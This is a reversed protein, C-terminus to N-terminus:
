RCHRDGLSAPSMSACVCTSHPQHNGGRGIVINSPFQSANSKKHVPKASVTLVFHQPCVVDQHTLQVATFLFPVTSGQILSQATAGMFAVDMHATFSIKDGVQKAPCLWLKCSPILLYLNIRICHSSCLECYDNFFGTQNSDNERM